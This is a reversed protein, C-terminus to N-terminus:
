DSGYGYFKCMVDQIFSLLVHAYIFPAVSCSYAMKSFLDCIMNCYFLINYTLVNMSTM